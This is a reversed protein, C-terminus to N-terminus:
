RAIVGCAIRAGSNGTPDTRYDDPSAHVIVAAGDADLLPADVGGLSAYPVAYRITGSGEASVLLNPLDGSHAGQPNQRGHQRATPNWHGGASEFGPAECRGATHVHVAYTGPRLGAADVRLLLWGPADAFTAYAQVEGTANTLVARAITSAGGAPVESRTACGAASLALAVAVLRSLHHIPQM